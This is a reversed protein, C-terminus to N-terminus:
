NSENIPYENYTDYCISIYAACYIYIYQLSSQKVYIHSINTCPLVQPKNNFIVFTGLDFSYTCKTHHKLSCVYMDPFSPDGDGGHTGNNLFITATDKGGTSNTGYNYKINKHKRIWRSTKEWNRFFFFRDHGKNYERWVRAAGSIIEPLVCIQFFYYLDIFDAYYVFM